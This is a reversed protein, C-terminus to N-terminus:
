RNYGPTHSGGGTAIAVVAVLVVTAVVTATKLASTRQVEIQQIDRYPLEIRSGSADTGGKANVASGVLSSEGVASVLFSHATGDATLARVTDGAKIEARIRVGSPDAAVPVLTTCATLVGILVSAATISTKM